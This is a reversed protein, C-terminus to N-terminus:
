EKRDYTKNTEVVGSHDDRYYFKGASWGLTASKLLDSQAFSALAEEGSKREPYAWVTCSLVGSSFDHTPQTEVVSSAGNLQAVTEAAAPALLSVLALALAVGWTGWAVGGRNM